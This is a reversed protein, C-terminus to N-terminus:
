DNILGFKERLTGRAYSTQVLGRDQLIPVVKEVFLDFQTPLLPPMINFGDAANNEFWDQMKDAVTEPTGIVIHHGRSGAVQKMVQELTLKKEKAEKLIVELRSQVGNGSDFEIDAFPTSLDYTNLDIEGVYPALIKLGVEPLILDQLTQYNDFAQDETDGLVPFLGPMISVQQAARNHEEVKDHLKKYFAQADTKNSQATFVIDAVKSALDTGTPSSGAQILLPRVQPSREINLPGKVKFHKGEHDITHLKGENIFQGNEKNRTFTNPDWSKWLKNTVEVFEDAREYRLEHEMHRTGNFNEATSNISSTVINWAARGQSIHDLSSFIRALHFPEEYTTSATSALGIEKTERALVTLLTLPEFRSLINPHSAESVFLSDALFILDFKGREAKQGIEVIHELDMPGKGIAEPHRWSAVHHGYGALFLGLKMHKKKM